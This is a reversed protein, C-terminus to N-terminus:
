YKFSQPKRAVALDGTPIYVPKDERIRIDWRISQDCRVKALLFYQEDKESGIFHKKELLTAIGTSGSWMFPDFVVGGKPVVSKVFRQVMAVPFQCPHVTKEIHNAKVNPIDWVDGPNKGLPNGSYEWKKEWKSYKKGPYKQPVRIPDMDLDYNNWKTFWLIVEHRWSFRKPTHFGHWFQWIIRNRLIIEGSEIFPKLADYVLWDLPMVSNNEVHYGIQWCISGGDKTIRVIDPFLKKHESLFHQYDDAEDYAKGMCYPPSTFTLDVSKDPIKKIFNFSDGNYLYYPNDTFKIPKEKM